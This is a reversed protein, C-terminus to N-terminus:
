AHSAAGSEPRARKRSALAATGLVACAILGAVGLWAGAAAGPHRFRWVVRHVGAPVTVARFAYNAELVPVRTGDVEAEWGPHYTDALLLIRPSDCAVRVELRNGTDEVIEATGPEADASMPRDPERTLVVARSPDFAPDLVRLLAQNENMVEYRTFLRARPLPHQLHIITSDTVVLSTAALEAARPSGPYIIREEARSPKSPYAYLRAIRPPAYNDYGSSNYLGLYIFRNNITRRDYSSTRPDPPLRFV